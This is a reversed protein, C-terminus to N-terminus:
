IEASTEEASLLRQHPQDASFPRAGTTAEIGRAQRSGIPRVDLTATAEFGAGSLRM